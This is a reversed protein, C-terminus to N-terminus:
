ILEQLQRAVDCLKDSFDDDDLFEQSVVFPAINKGGKGVTFFAVHKTSHSHTRHEAVYVGGEPTSIRVQSGLKWSMITEEILNNISRYTRESRQEPGRISM